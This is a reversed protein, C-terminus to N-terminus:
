WFDSIGVWITRLATISRWPAIVRLFQKWAHTHLPFPTTASSSRIVLCVVSKFLASVEKQSEATGMIETTFTLRKGLVHRMSLPTLSVPNLPDGEGVWHIADGPGGREDRERRGYFQLTWAQRVGPAKGMRPMSTGGGDPSVYTQRALYTSSPESRCLVDYVVANSRSLSSLGTYPPESVCM